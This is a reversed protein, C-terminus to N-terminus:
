RIPTASDASHCRKISGVRSSPLSRCANRQSGHIQTSAQTSIAHHTRGQCSETRATIPSGGISSPKESRSSSSASSTNATSSTNPRANAQTAPLTPVNDRRTIGAGTARSSPMTTAATSNKLM